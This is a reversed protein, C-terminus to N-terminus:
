RRALENSRRTAAEAERRAIRRFEYYLYVCGVAGLGAVIVGFAIGQLPFRPPWFSGGALNFAMLPIIVLVTLLYTLGTVIRIASWGIGRRGRAAQVGIALIIILAFNTMGFGNAILFGVDDSFRLFPLEVTVLYYVYNSLYFLSFYLFLFLPVGKLVAVLWTEHGYLFWNMFDDAWSLLRNLGGRPRYVPYSTM